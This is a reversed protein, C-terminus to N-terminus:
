EKRARFLNQFRDNPSSRGIEKQLEAVVALGERLADKAATRRMAYSPHVVPVVYRGEIEFVEGNVATISPKGPVFRDLAFRGIPVIIKPRILDMQLKLNGKCAAIEEAYPDRNNPPRCKVINTIYIDHFQLGVENMLQRLLRGSRGVFPLGSMDEHEGPAEGVLFTKATLVGDGVVVQQATERLACATCAKIQSIVDIAM